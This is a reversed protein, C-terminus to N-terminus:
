VEVGKFMGWGGGPTTVKELTRRREKGLVGGAVGKDLALRSVAGPLLNDFFHWNWKGLVV